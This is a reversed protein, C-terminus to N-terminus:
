DEEMTGVLKFLQILKKTFAPNKILSQLTYVQDEKELYFRVGFGPTELNFDWDIDIPLPSHQRVEQVAKTVRSRITTLVPYRRQYLLQKLFSVKQQVTWEPKLIKNIELREYCQDLSLDERVAIDGVWEILTLFEQAKLRLRRALIIWPHLAEVKLARLREIQRLSFHYQHLYQKFEEPFGAIERYTQLISGRCPIELFDLIRTITDSSLDTHAIQVVQAKEVVTLPRVSANIQLGWWFAEDLSDPEFIRAPVHSFPTEQLYELRRFGDVIAYTHAGRRLLLVPTLIGSRHISRRLRDDDLAAYRYRWRSDRVVTSRPVTEFRSSM